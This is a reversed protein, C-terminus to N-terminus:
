RTRRQEVRRARADRGGGLLVHVRCERHVHRRRLVAEPRPLDGLRELVPQRAEHGKGVHAPFEVRVGVRGVAARRDLVVPRLCGREAVVVHDGGIM